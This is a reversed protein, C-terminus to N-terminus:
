LLICNAAYVPSFVSLIYVFLGFTRFHRKVTPYSEGVFHCRFLRLVDDVARVTV